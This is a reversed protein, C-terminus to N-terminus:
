IPVGLSALFKGSLSLALDLDVTASRVGSLDAVSVARVAPLRPSEGDLLGQLRGRPGVRRGRVALTDLPDVGSRPAAVVNADYVERVRRTFPDEAHNCPHFGM